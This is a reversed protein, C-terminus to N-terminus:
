LSLDSTRVLSEHYVTINTQFRKHLERIERQLKKIREPQLKKIREPDPPTLIEEMMRFLADRLLKSSTFADTSASNM